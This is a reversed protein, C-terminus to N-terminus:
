LPAHQGQQLQSVPPLAQPHLHPASRYDLSESENDVSTPREQRDTQEERDTGNQQKTQEVEAGVVRVEAHEEM